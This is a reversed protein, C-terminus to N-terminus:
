ELPRDLALPISEKLLYSPGYCLRAWGEARLTMRVVRQPAKGPTGALVAFEANDRVAPSLLFGSQASGPIFRFEQEQGDAYTLHLWLLPMKYLFNLLRGAITRQVTIAAWVAHAGDAAHALEVPQNLQVTRETAASFSTGPRRQQAPQLKLWLFRPTAGVVRYMSLFAPWLAGDELAPFRGDIPTIGLLV